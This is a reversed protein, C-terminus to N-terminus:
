QAEHNVRARNLGPPEVALPKEGLNRFESLFEQVGSLKNAHEMALLQRSPAPENALKIALKRQYELFAMDEARQFSEAQILSHHSEIAGKIDQFRTKPSPNITSPTM